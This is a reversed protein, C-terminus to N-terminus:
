YNKMNREMTLLKKNRPFLLETNVIKFGFTKYLKVASINDEFVTLMLIKKNNHITILEDILKDIVIRGIGLNQYEPLIKIGIEIRKNELYIYNVYGVNYFQYIKIIRIYNKDDTRYKKYWENHCKKSIENDNILNKRIDPHNRVSYLFDLHEQRLFTFILKM